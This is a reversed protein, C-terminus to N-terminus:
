AISTSASLMHFTPQVETITCWTIQTFCNNLSFTIWKSLIATIQKTVFKVEEPINFVRRQSTWCQFTNSPKWQSVIFGVAKHISITCTAKIGHGIVRTINLTKKIHSSYPVLMPYVWMRLVLQTLLALCLM